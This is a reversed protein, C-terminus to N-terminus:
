TQLGWHGSCRRNPYWGRREGGHGSGRTDLGRDICAIGCNRCVRAPRRVGGRGGYCRLM